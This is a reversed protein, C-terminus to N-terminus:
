SEARDQLAIEIVIQKTNDLDILQKRVEDAIEFLLRSRQMEAFLCGGSAFHREVHYIMEGASQEPNTVILKMTAVKKGDSPIHDSM